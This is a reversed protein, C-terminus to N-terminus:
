TGRWWAGERCKVCPDVAYFDHLRTSACCAFTRGKGLGPQSHWGSNGGSLMNYCPAPHSRRTDIVAKSPATFRTETQRGGCGACTLWRMRRCPQCPPAYCTTRRNSSAEYLAKITPHWAEPGLGAGNSTVGREEVSGAESRLRLADDLALDWFRRRVADV